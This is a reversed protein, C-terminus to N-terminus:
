GPLLYTELMNGIDELINCLQRRCDQWLAIFEGCRVDADPANAKLALVARDYAVVVAPMLLEFWDREPLQLILRRVDDAPKGAFDTAAIERRYEAIVRRVQKMQPLGSYDTFIKKIRAIEAPCGPFNGAAVVEALRCHHFNDVRAGGETANVYRGGSGAAMASLSAIVSKFMLQTRVVGGHWGPVECDIMKQEVMKELVRREDLGLNVGAAHSVTMTEYALDMGIVIIPSAGLLNALSIAPIIVSEGTVLRGINLQEALRQGVGMMQWPDSFFVTQRPYCAVVGPPLNLGAVLVTEDSIMGLLQGAMIPYPDAAVVFDVRVGYHVLPRVASGAAIVLMKDQNDRAVAINKDLSPGAAVVLVPRGRWGGELLDLPPSAIIYPLNQWLNVASLGGGRQWFGRHLRLKTDIQGIARDDLAAFLEGAVEDWSPWRLIRCALLRNKFALWAAYGIIEAAQDDSRYFVNERSVMPWGLRQHIVESLHAGQRSNVVLMVSNGPLREALARVHYNLATGAVIYLTQEALNVSLAFDDAEQGPNYTSEIHRCRGDPWQWCSATQGNQAAILSLQM